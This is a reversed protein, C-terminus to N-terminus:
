RGLHLTLEAQPLKLRLKPHKEQSSSLNSSLVTFKFMSYLLDRKVEPAPSVMSNLLPHPIHCSTVGGKCGGWSKRSILFLYSTVGNPALLSLLWLQPPAAPSSLHQKRSASCWVQAALNPQM